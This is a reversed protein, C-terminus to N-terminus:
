NGDHDGLGRLATKFEDLGEPGGAPFHVYDLKGTPPFWPWGQENHHAKWAEWTESGVKVPVLLPFVTTLAASVVSSRWGRAREFMDNVVPWGNERRKEWQIETETRRGQEVLMVEIKTLPSPHTPEILLFNRYTEAMFPNSFPRAEIRTPKADAESKPDPVQEWLRNEFYTSPAYSYTRGNSRLLEIWADRKEAAQFREEPTLVLWADFWKAKPAGDLGPWSKILKWYANQIKKLDERDTASAGRESSYDTNELNDTIVLPPNATAPKETSPNVTSPNETQPLSAVSEVAEAPFPEDYIVLSLASFRGGDRAQEKQAYGLEVLEAIMRRAKDRGCNGKNIIDRLVVTWNDPKSLLYGLLWRAEMSLRTEEFVHNPIAAYRANRVGRRITPEERM